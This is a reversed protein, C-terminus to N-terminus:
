ADGWPVDLAEDKCFREVDYKVGYEPVTKSVLCAEYQDRRRDWDRQGNRLAEDQEDPSMRTYFTSQGYGDERIFEKPDLRELIDAFMRLLAPDAGLSSTEVVLLRKGRKEDARLDTFVKPRSLYTPAKKETTTM